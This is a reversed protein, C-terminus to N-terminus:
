RTNAAYVMHARTPYSAKAIRHSARSKPAPAETLKTVNCIYAETEAPLSRKGALHDQLTGPGANYAAFMNPYGYRKHLERLYAAGAIINDHPDSMDEGLGYRARMDDYTDPMVQMLGMAGARSMIPRGGLLTHGGSEVTMVAAIWDKPISFRKSAEEIYPQWRAMLARQSMGSESFDLTEQPLEVANLTWAWHFPKEAASASGGAQTSWNGLSLRTQATSWHKTLGGHPLLNHLLALLTALAFFLAAMTTQGINAFSNDVFPKASRTNTCDSEALCLSHSLYM